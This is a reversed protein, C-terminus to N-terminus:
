IANVPLNWVVLRVFVETTVIVISYFPRVVVTFFEIKHCNECKHGRKVARCMSDSQGDTRGHTDGDTQCVQSERRLRELYRFISQVM